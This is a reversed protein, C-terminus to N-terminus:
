YLESNETENPLLQRNQKRIESLLCRSITHFVDSNMGNSAFCSISVHLADTLNKIEQQIMAICDHESLEVCPKSDSTM